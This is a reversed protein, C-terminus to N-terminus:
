SAMLLDIHAVVDDRFGPHRGLNGQSLRNWFGTAGRLSLVEASSTDLTELLHKYRHHLPFESVGNPLFTRSRGGFASAPWSGSRNHVESYEHLMDGPNGLRSGLWEAVGVTVANGVLKWRPNNRNAGIGEVDTWGRDFGQMSEADEIGPKVLRRGVSGNPLWIAPPSPIGITSGGKLTPV